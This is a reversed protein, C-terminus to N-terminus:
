FVEEDLNSTSSTFARGDYKLHVVKIEDVTGVDKLRDATFAQTAQKGEIKAIEYDNQSLVFIQSGITTNGLESYLDEYVRKIESVQIFASTTAVSVTFAEPKVNEIYDNLLVSSSEVSTYSAGFIDAYCVVDFGYRAFTEEILTEVQRCLRRYAYNEFELEGNHGLRVTFKLTRDDDAYVYATASSYGLRNGIADATFSKAYRKELLATIQDAQKKDISNCGFLASMLTAMIIGSLLCIKIRKM